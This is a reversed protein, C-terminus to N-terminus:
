MPSHFSFLRWPHTIRDDVCKERKFTERSDRDIEDRKFRRQDLQFSKTVNNEGVSLANSSSPVVVRKIARPDDSLSSSISKQHM